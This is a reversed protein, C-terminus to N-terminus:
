LTVVWLVVLLCAAILLRAVAVDFDRQLQTFHENDIQNCRRIYDSPNMLDFPVDGFRPHRRM